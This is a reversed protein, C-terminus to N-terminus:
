KSSRMLDQGYEFSFCKDNVCAIVIAGVITLGVTLFNMLRNPADYCIVDFATAELIRVTTTPIPMLDVAYANYERM